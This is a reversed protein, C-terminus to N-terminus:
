LAAEREIGPRELRELLLALGNLGVRLLKLRPAVLEGLLDSLQLRLTFVRGLQHRLDVRLGSLQLRELLLEFDHLRCSM